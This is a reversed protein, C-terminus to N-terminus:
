SADVGCLLTTLTLQHSYSSRSELNPMHYTSLVRLSASPYLWSMRFSVLGSYESSPSISFSFRWCKPWRIRLVSEDSFVSISPFISPLLLVPCCLILHNSSMMSEISMLKVFSQSNTIYVSAQCATTWPNYVTLCLQAVLSFQVSHESHQIYM